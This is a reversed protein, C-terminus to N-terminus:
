PSTGTVINLLAPSRDNVLFIQDQVIVASSTKSNVNVDRGNDDILSAKGEIMSDITIRQNCPM